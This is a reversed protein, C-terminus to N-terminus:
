VNIAKDEPGNWTPMSFMLFPFSGISISISSAVSRYRYKLLRPLHVCNCADTSYYLLWAARLEGGNGDATIDHPQMRVLIGVVMIENTTPLTVAFCNFRLM